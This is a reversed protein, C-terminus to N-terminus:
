RSGALRTAGGTADRIALGRTLVWRWSGDAHQMRHESQLHPTQGALHADIAARLHLLDDRHVLNFWVEPEDDDPREGHGLIAHWRPSYYIRDAGLDWDWIGDNAARVALAYREESLALDRIARQHTMAYRISRALAAPDLHQKILYDTVGLASAELDLEYGEELTLIIVPARPPSLFGERVLELGPREGLREDILCRDHRQERVAALGSDWDPCLDVSFGAHDEAGLLEPSLSFEDDVDQVLLVALPEVPM